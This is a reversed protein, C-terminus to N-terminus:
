ALPVLCGCSTCTAAGSAAYTGASCSTCGCQSPTPVMGGSCLSCITNGTGLAYRGSACTSCSTAGPASFTGCGCSGCSSAGASSSFTGAFCKTCSTSGASSSFYGAACPDCSCKDSSVATGALCQKCGNSGQAAAYGTACSGSCGTNGTGTNYTGCSFNTCYSTKAVASFTGEPCGLCVDEERDRYQGAACDFQTTATMTTTTTTTPAPTPPLPTTTTTIIGCTLVKPICNPYSTSTRIFNTGACVSSSWFYYAGGFCFGVNQYGCNANEYYLVSGDPCGTSASYTTSKWGRAILAAALKDAAREGTSKLGSEQLAQNVLDTGCTYVTAGCSTPSQQCKSAVYTKTPNWSSPCCNTCGNPDTTTTPAPTPAATTTAPPAGTGVCEFVEPVCGSFSVAADQRSPNWQWRLNNYIMATHNRVFHSCSGARYYLIAMNPASGTWTYHKWNPDARLWDAQRGSNLTTPFNTVGLYQMMYLPLSTCWKGNELGNSYQNTYFVLKSYYDMTMDPCARGASVVGITSVLILSLFVLVVFVSSHM